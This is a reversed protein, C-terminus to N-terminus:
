NEVSKLQLQLELDAASVDDTPPAITEGSEAASPLAKIRIDKKIGSEVEVDDIQTNPLEGSNGSASKNPQIYDFNSGSDSEFFEADTFLAKMTLPIVISMFLGLPLLVKTSQKM